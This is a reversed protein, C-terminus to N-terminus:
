ARTELQKPKRGRRSTKLYHEVDEPRVVYPVTLGGGLKTAPLLGRRAAKKLRELSAGYKQAAEALLM